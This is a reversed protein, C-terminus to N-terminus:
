ASVVHYIGTNDPRLPIKPIVRIAVDEQSYSLEVPFSESLGVRSEYFMRKFLWDNDWKSSKPM